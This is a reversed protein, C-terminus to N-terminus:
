PKQSLQKLLLDIAKSINGSGIHTRVPQGPQVVICTPTSRVEFRQILEAWGDFVPKVDMISLRVNKERLRLILDRETEVSRTQAIDFLVRRIHLTEKFGPTAKAAYLYYKSYLPTLGSIPKDVLTVKVGLQHLEALAQELYPEISQCPPCFYDTFIIVETSGADKSGSSEFAEAALLVPVLLVCAISLAFLNNRLV